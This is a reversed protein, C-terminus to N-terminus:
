LRPCFQQSVKDYYKHIETRLIVNFGAGRELTACFCHIYATFLFDQLWCQFPSRPTGVLKTWSQRLELRTVYRSEAAQFPPASKSMEVSRNGGKPRVFSQLIIGHIVVQATFWPPSNLAQNILSRWLWEARWLTSAPLQMGSYLWPTAISFM